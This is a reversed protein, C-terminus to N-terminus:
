YVKEKMVILQNGKSCLFITPLTTEESLATPAPEQSGDRHTYLM